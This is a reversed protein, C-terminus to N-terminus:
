KREIKKKKEKGKGGRMETTKNDMRYAIVLPHARAM